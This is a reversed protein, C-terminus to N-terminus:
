IVTNLVRTFITSGSSLVEATAAIFHTTDLSEIHIMNQALYLIPYNWFIVPKRCSMNWTNEILFCFFFRPLLSSLVSHMNFLCSKLNTTLFNLNIGVTSKNADCMLVWSLRHRVPWIRFTNSHIWECLLPCTQFKISEWRKYTYGPHHLFYPCISSHSYQYSRVSWIM